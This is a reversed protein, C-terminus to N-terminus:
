EAAGKPRLAVRHLWSEEFNKPGATHAMAV